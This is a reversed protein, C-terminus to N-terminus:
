AQANDATATKIYSQFVRKWAARAGPAANM